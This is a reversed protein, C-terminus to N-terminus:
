EKKEKNTDIDVMPIAKKDEIEKAKEARKKLIFKILGLFHSKFFYFNLM